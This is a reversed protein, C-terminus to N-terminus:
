NVQENPESTIEEIQKELNFVVKRAKQLDRLLEKVRDKAGQFEEEELEKKAEDLVSKSIKKDSM